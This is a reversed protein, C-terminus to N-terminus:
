QEYQPPLGNELDKTFYRDGDPTEPTNTTLHSKPCAFVFDVPATSNNRLSHVQSEGIVFEEGAHVVQPEAWEVRGDQVTGTNMEFGTGQLFRYPEKGHEHYHPKVFNPHDASSPLVRAAYYDYTVGPELEVSQVDPLPVIIIGADKKVGSEADLLPRVQEHTIERIREMVEQEQEEHEGAERPHEREAM